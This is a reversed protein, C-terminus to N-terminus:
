IRDAINKALGLRAKFRLDLQFTIEDFYNRDIDLLNLISQTQLTLSATLRELPTRLPAAKKNKIVAAQAAKAAWNSLALYEIVRQQEAEDNEVSLNQM